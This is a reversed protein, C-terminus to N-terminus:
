SRSMKSFQTLIRLRTVIDEEPVGQAKSIKSLMFSSLGSILDLTIHVEEGKALMEERYSLVGLMGSITYELILRTDPELEGGDPCLITKWMDLIVSKVSKSVMEAGGQRVALFVHQLRDETLVDSAAEVDVGSLLNLCDAIINSDSLIEEELANDMLDEIDEFHYYFTGRNCGARSVIMSVTIQDLRYQELLEWFSDIMRQRAEPTNLNKKPRAM